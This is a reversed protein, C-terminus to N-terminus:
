RGDALLSLIHTQLVPSFFCFIAPSVLPLQPWALYRFPGTRLGSRDKRLCRLFVASVVGDAAVVGAHPDLRQGVWFVIRLFDSRQFFCMDLFLGLCKELGPRGAAELPRGFPRASANGNKLYLM